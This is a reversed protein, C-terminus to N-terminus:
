SAQARRRRLAFVALLALCAALAGVGWPSAGPVIVLQIQYSFDTTLSDVSLLPSIPHGAGDRLITGNSATTEYFTIWDYRHAAGGDIHGGDVAQKSEDPPPDGSAPDFTMSYEGPWAPAIAFMTMIDPATAFDSVKKDSEVEKGSSNLWSITISQANDDIRIVTQGKAAITIDDTNDGKKLVTKKGQTNNADTFTFLDSLTIAKNSKNEIAISKAQAQGVLALVAVVSVLSVLGRQVRTM